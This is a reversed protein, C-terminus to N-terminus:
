DWGEYSVFSKTLGLIREDWLTAQPFLARMEGRTLLRISRAAKEAEAPDTFLYVTPLLVWTLLTTAVLARRDYGLRRLLFIRILPLAVHFLALGRVFLPMEAPFGPSLFLVHM